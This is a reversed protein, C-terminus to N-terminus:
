TAESKAKSYVINPVALRYGVDETLMSDYFIIPRVVRIVNGSVLGFYLSIIDDLSIQPLRTEDNIRNARLFELKETPSLVYYKSSLLHKTPNYRLQNFTFYTVNTPIKYLESSATPNLKSKAIFIIDVVINEGNSTIETVLERIKDVRVDKGDDGAPNNYYVYLDRGLGDAKKYYKKFTDYILENNVLLEQTYHETFEDSTMELVKEEDDELIYGRDRVMEIQTKIVYFMGRIEDEFEKIEENNLESM